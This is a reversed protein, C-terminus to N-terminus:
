DERGVLVFGQAEEGGGLLYCFHDFLPRFNFNGGRLTGLGVDERGVAADVKVDRGGM